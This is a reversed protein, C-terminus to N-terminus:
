LSVRVDIYIQVSMSLLIRDTEIEVGLYDFSLISNFKRRLSNLTSSFVLEGGSEQYDVNM